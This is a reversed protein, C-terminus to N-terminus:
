GVEPISTYTYPTDLNSLWRLRCFTLSTLLTWKWYVELVSGTIHAVSPLKIALHYAPDGHKLNM